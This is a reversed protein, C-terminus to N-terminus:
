SNESSNSSHVIKLQNSFCKLMDLFDHIMLFLFFLYKKINNKNVKQRWLNPMRFFQQHMYSFVNPISEMSSGISHFIDQVGGQIRRPRFCGVNDFYLDQYLHKQTSKVINNECCSKKCFPYPYGNFKM